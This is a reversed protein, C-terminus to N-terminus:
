QKRRSTTRAKKPEPEGELTAAGLLRYLAAKEKWTMRAWRVKTESVVAAESWGPNWVHLLEHLLTKAVESGRPDLTITRAQATGHLYRGAERDVKSRSMIPAFIIRVAPRM